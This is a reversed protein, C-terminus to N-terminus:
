GASHGVGCVLEAPDNHGVSRVNKAQGVEMDRPLTVGNKVALVEAMVSVAIEPPTKSGIYIGIPGRLRA